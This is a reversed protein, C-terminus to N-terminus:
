KEVKVELVLPLCKSKDEFWFQQEQLMTVELLYDGPRSPAVVSIAVEQRCYPLIPLTLETRIGDYVVYKDSSKDKWHYSLYIPFPSFSKMMISTNNAVLLQLSFSEFIKKTSKLFDTKFSIDVQDVTLAQQTILSLIYEKDIGPNDTSIAFISTHSSLDKSLPKKGFNGKLDPLNSTWVFVYEFYKQLSRKLQAPTQENIHMLDEYYSRPNQPLYLGISRASKIQKKYNTKYYLKNPSTHIIFMGDKKLLKHINEFAKDLSKREIHEVVDTAVIKNFMTNTKFNLIDGCIFELNKSNDYTNKAMEVADYSYDLGVMKNCVKSFLCALEGRGSGVDLIVDSNQIDSLYYASLIRPDKVVKGRHKKFEDYGGCASLYYVKDYRGRLDIYGHGSFSSLSIKNIKIVFTDANKINMAFSEIHMKYKQLWLQISLAKDISCFYNHIYIFRVHPLSIQLLDYIEDCTLNALDEIEISQILKDDFLINNVDEYNKIIFNVNKKLCKSYDKRIKQFLCATM